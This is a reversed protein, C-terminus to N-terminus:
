CETSPLSIKLMTTKTLNIVIIIIIDLLKDLICVIFFDCMIHMYILFFIITHNM